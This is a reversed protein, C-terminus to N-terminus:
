RRAADRARDHQYFASRAAQWLAPDGRRDRTYAWWEIGWLYARTAGSRRALRINRELWAPSYSKLENAPTRRPDVTSMEYPEAQLEGIWLEKGRRAAAQAQGPLDPAFPGIQYPFLYLWPWPGRQRKTYVSQAVVDAHDLIWGPTPDSRFWSAHSIVVRHAGNDAARVVALEQEVFSRRLHRHNAHGRYYVFPENEIQFAEVAPHGSLRRVAADLYPLLAARVEPVDEPYGHEPISASQKLWQPFWFEPYRPAKMGVAIVATAGRAQLQDLQGLLTDFRYVGPTPEAESWYLPLRFRRVGLVDLAEILVQDCDLGLWRARPCSLTVGLELDQEPATAYWQRHSQHAGALLLVAPALWLRVAPPLRSWMRGGAITIRRFLRAVLPLNRTLAHM